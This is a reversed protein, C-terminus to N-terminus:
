HHRFAQGAHSNAVALAISAVPLHSVWERALQTGEAVTNSFAHVHWNAQLTLVLVKACFVCSIEDYVICSLPARTANQWNWKPSHRRISLWTYEM